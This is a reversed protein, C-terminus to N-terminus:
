PAYNSGKRRNQKASLLQLNGVVHLGSVKEGQLPYIHDVEGIKGGYVDHIVTAAYYVYDIAETESWSLVRGKSKANNLASIANAKHRPIRYEQKYRGKYKERHREAYDPNESNFRANREKALKRAETGQRYEKYAAYSCKKCM